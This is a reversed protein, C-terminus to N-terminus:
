RPPSGTLTLQQRHFDFHVTAYHYVEMLTMVDTFFPDWGVPFHMGRGLAGDDDLDLNRHLGAVSRDLRRTLRGGRLVRAGACGGLYNVVHFPGTVANLAGAFVRSVGDPLRGMVRVLPLLTRVVFYGLLM